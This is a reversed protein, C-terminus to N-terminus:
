RCAEAVRILRGNCTIVDPAVVEAWTFPVRLNLDRGSKRPWAGAMRTDRTVHLLSAFWIVALPPQYAAPAVGFLPYAKLPKVPLREPVVVGCLKVIFAGALTVAFKVAREGVTTWGDSGPGTGGPVCCTNVNANESGFPAVLDEVAQRSEIFCKWSSINEAISLCPEGGQGL